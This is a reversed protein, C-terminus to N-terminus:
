NGIHLFKSMVTKNKEEYEMTRLKAAHEKKLIQQRYLADQKELLREAEQKELPAGMNKSRERNYQDVSSFQPMSAYDRESVALITQDKHVKRLDDFKLKSFPDSSIYQNRAEDDDEYLQSGSNHTLHQVGRYQVLGSSQQKFQDFVQGMNKSSVKENTKFIPEETKFWDNRSTDPKSAMNEEFIQNFKNQFENAPMETVMTKVKQVTAKNYQTDFLKYQSNDETVAINTKNENHFYQVIMDFAKKYFLFYDASLGSKDPHLMLVSKKARRLDELTMNYKLDFLGFLEDLSYMNINLNHSIAKNSM